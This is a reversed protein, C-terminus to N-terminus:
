DQISCDLRWLGERIGQRASSDPPRQLSRSGGTCQTPTRGQSLGLPIVTAPLGLVNHLASYLFNFPKLYSQFQYPPTTPHSPSILIGNSGLLCNVKEKLQRLKHGSHSTEKGLAKRVRGVVQGTREVLAQALVPATHRGWGVCYRLMELSVWASAQRDEMDACISAGPDLRQLEETFLGFVQRLEPIHIPQVTVGYTDELYDVVRQIALRVEPDLCSVVSGGVDTTLYFFKCKTFFVETDLQLLHRNDGLLLQLLPVLDEAHRALPGVVQLTEESGVRPDVIDAGVTSVTGQSPKHGFLGCFAAPIRVSGGTDSALSIPIGASTQLAAEGGSSGGPSHAQSYPNYTTGYLWNSSNWWSGLESVNTVCLPIAGAKRLLRVCSADETSVIERRAPVGYSHHLGTVRIGEKSSFPVGLFPQEVAVEELALESLTPIIRDCRRAEELAAEFRRDVVANVLSNVESIREICAEVLLESTIERRRIKAALATASLLLLKNTVPPLCKRSNWYLIRFSVNSIVDVLVRICFGFRGWAELIFRGAQM